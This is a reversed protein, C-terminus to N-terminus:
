GMPPDLRGRRVLIKMQSQYSPLFFAYLLAALLTIAFSIVFVRRRRFLVAVVDRRTPSSTRSSWSRDVSLEEGMCISGIVSGKSLVADSERVCRHYSSAFVQSGQFRHKP